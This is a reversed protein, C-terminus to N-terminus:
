ESFSSRTRERRSPAREDGRCKGSKDSLRFAQLDLFRSQSFVTSAQFFLFFALFWVLFRALFFSSARSRKAEEPEEWSSTIAIDGDTDTDPLRSRQFSSAALRPRPSSPFLIMLSDTEVRRRKTFRLPLLHFSVNREQCSYCSSITLSPASTSSLLPPTSFDARGFTSAVVRSRECATPTKGRQESVKRKEFRFSIALLLIFCLPASWSLRDSCREFAPRRM